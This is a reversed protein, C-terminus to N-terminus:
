AGRAMVAPAALTAEGAGAISSGNLPEEAELAIAGEGRLRKADVVAELLGLEVVSQESGEDGLDSVSLGRSDYTAGAPGDRVPQPEEPLV